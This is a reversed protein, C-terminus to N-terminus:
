IQVAGASWAGSISRARGAYDTFVGTYRAAFTAATSSGSPAFNSAMVTDQQADTAVASLANWRDISYYNGMTSPNLSVGNIGTGGPIDDAAWVPISPTPWVNNGILKFSSLSTDNVYLGATVNAGVILNDAKYLNNVFVLGSARGGVYLFKGKTGPNIVTNNAITLNSVGRAYTTDYADIIIANEDTRELVNNRIVSNEVGHVVRMTAGIGHNSEFVTNKLRASKWATGDTGGLPGLQYNHRITNGYVYAYDAWQLNLSNKAPEYSYTTPNGLDNYAILIRNVGFIRIAHEHVVNTVRNGLIVFDNGEGWLFYSRLFQTPADSDQVLLGTPKHNTQLGYSVNVFTVGRVVSDNGNVKIAFPLGSRDATPGPWISDFTVDEIISGASGEEIQIMMQSTKAGSWKLVPDNGSGFAGIKVNAGSMSLTSSQGFTDGRRLLLEVNSQNRIMSVARGISKIPRASSGDNADNGAASVYIQRRGAAQVTVTRTTTAVGRKENLVRLTITYTGPNAYVHGATFGVLKNYKGSSDGFDWEYRATTASGANLTSSLANVFVAAGAKITTSRASIVATPKVAANDAAAPTFVSGGAAAGIGGGASGGTPTPTPTPTPAPTPTPTPTSSPVSGGSVVIEDLNAGGAAAAAVAKISVTGAPLAVNGLSATSWSSWGGTPNGAVNGVLKNNVYIAWARASTSGNAYRLSLTGATSGNGTLSFTTSSGAGGFDAYGSGRYGGNGTSKYTGGGMAATEAQLTVPAATAAALLDTAM